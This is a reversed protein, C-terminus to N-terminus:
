IKFIVRYTKKDYACKARGDVALADDNRQIQGAQVFDKIRSPKERLL